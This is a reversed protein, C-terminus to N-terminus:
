HPHHIHLPTDLAVSTLTPDNNPLHHHHAYIGHPPPLHSQPHPQLPNGPITANSMSFDGGYKIEQQWVDQINVDFDNSFLSPDIDQPIM